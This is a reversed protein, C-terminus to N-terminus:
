KSSHESIPTNATPDWLRTGGPHRTSAFYFTGMLFGSGLAVARAILMVPGILTLGISRRALKYLFPMGSFLFSSAALGCLPRAWQLGPWVIRLLSLLFLPATLALLLIQVKLPQPTHSDHVMRGPYRRAVLAKWYGITYKRRAYEWINHDHLHAVQAEPAFVLQLGKAALRFSFEQDEVSATRFTTDFGGYELFKSRRYGASYTDIFDISPRGAMRDYRDEYEAQVFRPVLARQETCYTGKAGVVDPSGFAKMMAAIWNPRPACDADTFLLLDGGALRAGHNRAAAPGANRQQVL